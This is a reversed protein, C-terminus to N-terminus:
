KKKLPASRVVQNIDEYADRLCDIFGSVNREGPHSCVIAGLLEDQISYRYFVNVNLVVNM